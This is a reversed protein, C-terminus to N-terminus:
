YAPKGTRGASVLRMTMCTEDDGIRELLVGVVGGCILLPPRPSTAVLTIRMAPQGNLRVLWPFYYVSSSAPLNWDAPNAPSPALGDGFSFNVSVGRNKIMSWLSPMDVLKYLLSKLGDTYQVIEFYSMLAPITACVARQEAPTPKAVSLANSSVAQNFDVIKSWRFVAAAAQEMGLGLFDENLAFQAKAVESKPPKKWGAAGFPGLMRMKVPAPKSEFKVPPGFSSLVAIRNTKTVPSKPDPKIAEVQLVWQTRKKKEVFTILVTAADGPQLGNTGSASDMGEMPIQNLSAATVLAPCPPILSLKPPAKVPLDACLTLRICGLL